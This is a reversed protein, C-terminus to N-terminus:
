ACMIYNIRTNCVFSWVNGQAEDSKAAMEQMAQEWLRVNFGGENFSFKTAFREVQPIILKTITFSNVM